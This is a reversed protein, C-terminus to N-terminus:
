KKDTGFKWEPHRKCASKITDRKVMMDRAAEAKSKYYGSELREKYPSQCYIHTEKPAFRWEPHRKCISHFTHYSVKMDEAAAKITKYYGSELREKYPSQLCIISAFKDTGFKWEPHRKCATDFAHRKVMMDRRADVKSKYYGSELREKYPSKCYIHTEKSGFRWEPHIKYKNYLLSASINMDRAAEAKSKYYGSELREKYPSQLYIKSLAKDTGFKWEPHRKCILKFKSLSIEMDNVADTKTKYYGSELREKYPSQCCISTEKSVFKWEPHRKRIVSLNGALLGMDEAAAKLTEYYGSELREKYPSQYYLPTEKSLFKWEPHRKCISQLTYYSVKMDEAAAKITKYYGSELREKYPSQIYIPGNIRDKLLQIIHKKDCTYNHIVVQSGKRTGYQSGYNIITFNRDDLGTRMFAKDLNINYINSVFDIITVKKLKGSTDLARGIQQFYVRESVTKRVCIVADIPCTHFGEGFMDVTYIFSMRKNKKFKNLNKIRNTPSLRYNYSLHEADPFIEETIAKITILETINKCFVAIKKHKKCVSGVLSIYNYKSNEIDLRKVLSLVEDDDIKYCQEREYETLDDTDFSSLHYDIDPYLGSELAEIFSIGKIRNDNFIENIIDVKDLRDPTASLGIVPINPFKEIFYQIHSGWVKAGTHHAEDCILLGYETGDLKDIFSPKFAHYTIIDMKSKNGKEIWQGGLDKNPVIILAKTDVYDNIFKGAIYSKGSGMTSDLLCRGDTIISGVIDGYIDDQRETLQIENM